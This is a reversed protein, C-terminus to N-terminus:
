AQASEGRMKRIIGLHAYDSAMGEVHGIRENITLSKRVLNEADDLKGKIRWINGLHGYAQALEHALNSSESVRVAQQLLQEAQDLDGRDVYLTALNTCGSATGKPDAFEECLRLSERYM